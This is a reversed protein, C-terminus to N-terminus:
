EGQNDTKTQQSAAIEQATDWALKAKIYAFQNPYNLRHPETTPASAALALLNAKQIDTDEKELITFTDSLGLFDTNNMEGTELIQFLTEAYISDPELNEHCHELLETIDEKPIQWIAEKNHCKRIISQWYESITTTKGSITVSFDPFNAAKAAWKALVTAYKLEGLASTSKSFILKDLHLELERRMDREKRQVYADKFDSIGQRWIKIYSPVDSLDSNIPGIRVTPFECKNNIAQLHECLTLLNEICIAVTYITNETFKAPVEFDVLDTKNLLGLFLLYEEPPSLKDLLYYRHYISSLESLSCSFIPHYHRRSELYFPVYQVSFEIGSIACLVKM